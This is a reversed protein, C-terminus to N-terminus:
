EIEHIKLSIYKQAPINSSTSLSSEPDLPCNQGYPNLDGERCQKQSESGQRTTRTKTLQKNKIGGKKCHFPQGM